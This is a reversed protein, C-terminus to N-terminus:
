DATAPRLLVKGTTLRGELQRHAEAAEALPLEKGVTIKLQGSAIWSFLEDARRAFEEPTAIYHFLTPRTVFLSKGASMEIPTHAGVPGSANGFTALTGRLRLVKLSGEFTSQGVGDYVVDIANEGAIAEVAEAFDVDRYRIVHDAGAAAAIEAKEATGVTTFVEAGKIKAMQILLQGTGGAGAQILCRDNPGLAYTSDILYHATLGQLMAAAAVDSAIGDPVAVASDAPLVIHTAYSGAVGTWAVSDGVKWKDVGPGVEVVLGAGELGPVFPLEVPYLGTRHYTDIFNLGAAGIEVLVQGDSPTPDAVEVYELVEPGGTQTMQIAFM